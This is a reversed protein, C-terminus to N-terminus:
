DNQAVEDQEEPTEIELTPVNLIETQTTVEVDPVEVEMETSGISVEGVEADFEPLNGGEVSVDVDPLSAQETQEVDILMFGFYVVVAVLIAAVIGLFAKM